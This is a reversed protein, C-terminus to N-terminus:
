LRGIGTLCSLFDASLDPEAEAAKTFYASGVLYCHESYFARGAAKLECLRAQVVPQRSYPGFPMQTILFDATRYGLQRAHGVVAAPNSYSSIELFVNRYGASLLHRSVKTGDPGGCLDPLM